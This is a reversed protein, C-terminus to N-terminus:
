AEIAAKMSRAADVDPYVEQYARIRGENALLTKLHKGVEPNTEAFANGADRIAKMNSPKGADQEQRQEGGPKEVQQQQDTPTELTEPTPTEVTTGTDLTPAEMASFDLVSAAESM